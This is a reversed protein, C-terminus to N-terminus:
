TTQLVTVCLLHWLHCLLGAVLCRQVCELILHEKGEGAPCQTRTIGKLLQNTSMVTKGFAMEPLHDVGPAPNHSREGIKWEWSFPSPGLYSKAQGRDPALARHSGDSWLTPRGLSQFWGLYVSCIPTCHLNLPSYIIFLGKGRTGLLLHYFLYILYLWSQRWTIVTSNFIIGNILWAFLQTEKAGQGLLPHREGHSESDEPSLLNRANPFIFKSKIVSIKQCCIWSLRQTDNWQTVM